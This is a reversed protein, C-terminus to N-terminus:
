YLITGQSSAGVKIANQGFYPIGISYTLSISVIVTSGTYNNPSWTTTIVSGNKQAAWLYPAVLTTINAASCPGLVTNDGGRVIAYRVALQSAYAAGCYGAFVISFEVLGFIIIFYLPIILAMEVMASGSQGASKEIKETV